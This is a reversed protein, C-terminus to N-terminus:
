SAVWPRASSTTARSIRTPGSQGFGSISSYVLNPNITKLKAYGVGLDDLTGPRFNEIVV